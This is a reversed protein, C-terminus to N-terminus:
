GSSPKRRASTFTACAASSMSPVISRISATPKGYYDRGEGQGRERLSLPWSLVAFPGEATSVGAPYVM